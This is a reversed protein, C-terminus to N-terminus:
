VLYAVFAENLYYSQAIRTCKTWMGDLFLARRTSSCTQARFYTWLASRYVVYTLGSLHTPITRFRTKRRYRRFFVFQMLPRVYEYRVSENMLILAPMCVDGRHPVTCVCAERRQLEQVFWYHDPNNSFIVDISSIRDTVVCLFRNGYSVTGYTIQAVGLYPFSSNFWRKQTYM